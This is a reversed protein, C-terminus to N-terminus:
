ARYVKALEQMFMVGLPSNERQQTKAIALVREYFPVAEAFRKQDRYFRALNGLAVGTEWKDPGLRSNIEEWAKTLADETKDADSGAQPALLLVGIALIAIPNPMTKRDLRGSLPSLRNRRGRPRM